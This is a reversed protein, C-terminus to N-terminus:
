RCREGDTLSRDFRAIQDGFELFRKIRMHPVPVLVILDDLTELVLRNHPPATTARTMAKRLASKSDTPPNQPTRDYGYQTACAPDKAATYQM